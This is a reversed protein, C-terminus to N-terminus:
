TNKTRAMESFHKHGHSVAEPYYKSINNIRVAKLVLASGNAGLSRHYSNNVWVSDIMSLGLLRVTSDVSALM